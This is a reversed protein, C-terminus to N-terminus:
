GGEYEAIDLIHLKEPLELQFNISFQAPEFDNRFEFKPLLKPIGM